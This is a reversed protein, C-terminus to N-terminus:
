NHMNISWICKLHVVTITVLPQEARMSTSQQIDMSFECRGNMWDDHCMIIEITKFGTETVKWGSVYCRVAHHWLCQVEDLIVKTAQHTHLVYVLMGHDTYYAPVTESYGKSM